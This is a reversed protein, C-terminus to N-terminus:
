GIPARCRGSSVLPLRVTFTAGAGEQSEVGITGGHQEVIQRSGSLGIGTGRIQGVVNQGRHFREFVRPLDAAPIGLGQDRVTVVARPGPPHDERSVSVTITGGNPSYKVANSLVNALM